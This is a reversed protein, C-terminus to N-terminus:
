KCRFFSRVRGSMLWVISRASYASAICFTRRPSTSFSTSVRDYASVSLAAAFLLGNFFGNTMYDPDRLGGRNTPTARRKQPM